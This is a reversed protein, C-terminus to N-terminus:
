QAGAPDEMAEAEKPGGLERDIADRVAAAVGDRWPSEFLLRGESTQLLVAPMQTGESLLSRTYSESLHDYVFPIPWELSRLTGLIQENTQPGQPFLLTGVGHRGELPALAAAIEAFEESAPDAFVCLFAPDNWATYIDFPRPVGTKSHLLRPGVALLFNPAMKRLKGERVENAREIVNTLAVPVDAVGDRGFDIRARRGGDEVRVLVGNIHVPLPGSRGEPTFPEVLAVQYPWFRESALLNAGTVAAATDDSADHPPLQSTVHGEDGAGATVAPLALCAAIPLLLLTTVHKM